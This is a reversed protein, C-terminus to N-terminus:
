INIAELLVTRFGEANEHMMSHGANPVAFVKLGLVQAEEIPIESKNQEGVIYAKPIHMNALLKRQPPETGNLLGVSSRHLAIPGSISFSGSYIADVLNSHSNLRLAKIIKDCGTKVFDAENQSAITKSLNGVGPDLNPEMIILRSVLDPRKQTLAIAVTGGMSHGAVIANKIQLHDLLAAITDAHNHLSYGFKNPRDSFGFGLFDILLCRYNRFRNDTVTESFDAISSTGLGHLLVLAPGDGPIELYRLFAKENKLWLSQM